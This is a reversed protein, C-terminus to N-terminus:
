TFPSTGGTPTATARGNSSGNCTVYNIVGAHAILTTPQTITVSTTASCNNGDTITLTYIGASLNSATLNTGGAPSWSYAYPSTGGTAVNATASGTSSGACLVNVQSAISGSLAGPQTLTVSASASCNNADHISVTYTGASLGSVTQNTNGGSSWSYTFPATGGSTGATVAGSSQGNCMVENVVNATAGLNCAVYKFVVGDGYKGGGGGTGYLVDGNVALTVKFPTNGTSDTFQWLQTYGSGNTDVSYLTGESYFDGGQYTTGYLTGGIQALAGGYPEDGDSHGTFNHLTKFDSGDPHISFVTGYGGSGGSATTGYLVGNSIILTGQPTSGNTGNFDFLDKYNSGDTQVSFVCGGYNAGDGSCTGYFTSGSLLLDGQPVAGTASTFSYIDTYGTGSTSINFISGAGNVGGFETMGYMTSGVIILEGEPDCSETFDYIDQYGTGDPNIKIICGDYYAGGSGVIGYLVGGSMTLTNQPVEGDPQSTFEHMDMYGTGDTNVKYIVGLNPAGGRYTMGYLTNGSLYVGANPDQGQYPNAGNFSMVDHYQAKTATIGIFSLIFVLLNLKKM